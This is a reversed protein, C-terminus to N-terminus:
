DELQGREKIVLPVICALWHMISKKSSNNYEKLAALGAICTFLGAEMGHIVGKICILGKLYYSLKRVKEQDGRKIM